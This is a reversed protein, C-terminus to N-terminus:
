LKRNGITVTFTTEMDTSGPASTGDKVDPQHRLTVKLTGSSAAGTTVTATLGVALNNEDKDFNNFVANLGTSPTYVFLHEDNEEAIEEKIDEAPSKSEDLVADVSLSYVANAQLSLEDIVPDAGGDGDLDKWTITQTDSDDANNIFKLRFTTILENEDVDPLEDKKCGTFAIAGVVVALIM